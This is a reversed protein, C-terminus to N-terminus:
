HRGYGNQTGQLPGGGPKNCRPWGCVAGRHQRDLHHRPNGAAQQHAGHCGEHQRGRHVGHVHVQTPSPLSPSPLPGVHVNPTRCCCPRGPPQSALAVMEWAANPATCLLRQISCFRQAAKQLSCALQMGLDQPASWKSWGSGRRVQHRQGGSRVECDPPGAWRACQHHEAKITRCRRCLNILDSLLALADLVFELNRAHQAQLSLQLACGQLVGHLGPDKGTGIVASWESPAPDQSNPNVSKVRVRYLADDLAPDPVTFTIADSALTGTVAANTRVFTYGNATNDATDLDSPGEVSPNDVRIVDFTYGAAGPPSHTSDGSRPLWAPTSFGHAWGRGSLKRCAQLATGWGCSIMHCTVAGWEQRHVQSRCHASEGANDNAEAPITFQVQLRKSPSILNTLTPTGPATPPGALRTPCLAAHHSQRRLM